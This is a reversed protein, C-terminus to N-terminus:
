KIIEFLGFGMAKKSGIGAKYLYDLLTKNGRLEFTGISCEIKKEYVSIVIKKANIPVIGFNQLLNIDLNEAELQKEINIDLYQKFEPRDFAYYMDKLTEQNHNRCILPSSMKIKIVESDVKKEPIKIISILTMSNKNLSYKQFKQKIFANYLHLAYIYNYASFVISFQNNELTIEQNEFKPKSLITAFTFTKKNNGQYIEKYLDENYEQLAHKIWSIIGKRYQFDIKNNELKFILKLRM